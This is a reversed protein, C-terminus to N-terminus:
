ATSSLRARAKPFLWGQMELIETLVPIAEERGLRGLAEIATIRI